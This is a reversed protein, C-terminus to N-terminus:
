IEYVEEGQGRYKDEIKNKRIKYGFGIKNDIFMVGRLKKRLRSIFVSINSDCYLSWDVGYVLETLKKRDVFKDKNIILIKMIENEINSFSIKKNKVILEGNMYDYIIKNEVTEEGM